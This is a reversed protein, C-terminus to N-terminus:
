LFKVNVTEQRLDMERGGIILPFCSRRKSQTCLHSGHLMLGPRGRHRQLGLRGRGGGAPICGSGPRTFHDERTKFYLVAHGSTEKEDASWSSVCALTSMLGRPFPVRALHRRMKSDREDNRIVLAYKQKLNACCYLM